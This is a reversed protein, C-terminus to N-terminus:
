YNITLESDIVLQRIVLFVEKRKDSLLEQLSVSKQSNIWHRLRVLINVLSSWQKNFAAPQASSHKRLSTPKIL